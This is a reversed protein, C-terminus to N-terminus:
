QHPADTDGASALAPRAAKIASKRDLMTLREEQKSLKEQLDAQLAKFDGILGAMAASVRTVPSVDEGTRSKIEADNMM